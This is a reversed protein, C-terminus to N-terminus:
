CQAAPPQHVQVTAAPVALVPWNRNHLATPVPVYCRVEYVHLLEDDSRADSKYNESIKPQLAGDTM